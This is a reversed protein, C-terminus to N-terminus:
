INLRIERFQRDQQLNCVYYALLCVPANPIYTKVQDGILDYSTSVALNYHAIM